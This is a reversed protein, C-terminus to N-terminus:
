LLGELGSPIECVQAEIRRNKWLQLRRQAITLPADRYRDVVLGSDNGHPRAELGVAVAKRTPPSIAQGMETHTEEINVAIKRIKAKM